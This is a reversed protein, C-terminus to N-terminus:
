FGIGSVGHIGYIGVNVGWVVGIYLCIHCVHLAQTNTQPRPNRYPTAEVGRRDNFATRRQNQAPCRLHLVMFDRSSSKFTLLIVISHNFSADKNASM